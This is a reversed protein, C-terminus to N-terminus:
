HGIFAVFDEISVM